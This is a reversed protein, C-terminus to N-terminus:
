KKGNMPPIKASLYPYPFITVIPMRMMNKPYRNRDIGNPPSVTANALMNAANTNMANPVPKNM